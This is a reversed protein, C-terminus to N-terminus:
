ILGPWLKILGDKSISTKVRVRVLISAAESSSVFFSMKNLIHCVIEVAVIIENVKM